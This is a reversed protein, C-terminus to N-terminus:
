INYNVQGVHGAKVTPDVFIEIGTEQAKRCFFIDEGLDIDYKFWPQGIKKFIDVKTLVCGFGIGDVLMLEKTERIEKLSVDEYTDEETKSYRKVVANEGNIVKYSYVGSVIDKNHSLLRLLTNKPLIMDSDVWLIYDYGIELAHEVILNRSADIAYSQPAFVGIRGKRKMGILSAACQIDIERSTPIAILIKMFGGAV